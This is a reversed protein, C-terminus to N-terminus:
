KYDDKNFNSTIDSKPDQMIAFASAVHHSELVSIDNYRIAIEHKAEVLYPNNVGFHGLDHCAGGIIMSAFDIDDLKGKDKFGGKTLIFYATASM